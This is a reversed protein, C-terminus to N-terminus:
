FVINYTNANNAANKVWGSAIGGSSEKICFIQGNGEGMLILIINGNGLLSVSSFPNSDSVDGALYYSKMKGDKELMYMGMFDWSYLNGNKGLIPTSFSSMGFLEAPGEANWAVQGTKADLKMMKGGGIFISNETDATMRNSIREETYYRWLLNGKNDYSAVADSYNNYSDTTYQLLINGGPTVIMGKRHLISTGVQNDDPLPSKWAVQLSGGTAVEIAFLNVDDSVYATNGNAVLRTDGEDGFLYKDDDKELQAVLNGNSPNYAELIWNTLFTKQSFLLIHGNVLAMNRSVMSGVEVEWEKSGNAANYCQLYVTSWDEAILYLKGGFFLPKEEVVQLDDVAINWLKSGNKNFADLVFGGGLILGGPKNALVYINDNGDIAPVIAHLAPNVPLSLQEQWLVDAPNSNKKPDPDNNDDKGCAFFLAMIVVGVLFKLNKRIKKKM